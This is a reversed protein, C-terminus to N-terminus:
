DRCESVSPQSGSGKGKFIKKYFTDPGASSKVVGSQIIKEIYDKRKLKKIWIEYKRAEGFSECDQKFVLRWPLYRKTWLVQGKNHREVRQEINTTSGIYYKGNKESTLIYVYNM